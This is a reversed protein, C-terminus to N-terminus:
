RRLQNVEVLVYVSGAEIVSHPIFPIQGKVFIGFVNSYYDWLEPSLEPIGVVPSDEIYEVWYGLGQGRSTVVVADTGIRTKFDVLDSYGEDSITPRILEM